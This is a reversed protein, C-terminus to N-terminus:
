FSTSLHPSLNAGTFTMLDLAPQLSFVREPGSTCAGPPVPTIVSGSRERIHCSLSKASCRSSGTFQGSQEQVCTTTRLGPHRCTPPPPPEPFVTEAGRITVKRSLDSKDRMDGRVPPTTEM